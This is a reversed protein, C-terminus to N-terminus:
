YLIKIEDNQKESRQKIMNLFSKYTESEKEDYKSEKFKKGSIQSQDKAYWKSNNLGSLSFQDSSQSNTFVENNLKKFNNEMSSGRSHSVLIESKNEEPKWQVPCELNVILKNNGKPKQETKRASNNRYLPIGSSNLRSKSRRQQSGRASSLRRSEKSENNRDRSKSRRWESGMRSKFKTKPRNSQKVPEEEEWTWIEKIRSEINSQKRISPRLGERKNDKQVRPDLKSLKM